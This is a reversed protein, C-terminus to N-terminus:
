CIKAFITTLIHNSISVYIIDHRNRTTGGLYSLLKHRYLTNKERTLNKLFSWARVCNNKGNKKEEM